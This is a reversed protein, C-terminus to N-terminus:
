QYEGVDQVVHPHHGIILNAGHDM